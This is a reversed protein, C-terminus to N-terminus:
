GATRFEPARELQKNTRTRAAVELLDPAVGNLLPAGRLRILVQVVEIPLNLPEQLKGLQSRRVIRDPRAVSPQLHFTVQHEIAAITLVELDNAHKVVGHIDFAM